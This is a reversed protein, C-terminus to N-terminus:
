NLLAEQRAIAVIAAATSFIRREDRVIEEDGTLNELLQQPRPIRFLSSSPFSGDALQLRALGALLTQDPMRLKAKLLLVLSLEAVDTSVPVQKLRGAEYLVYWPRRSWYTRLDGRAIREAIYKNARRQAPGQHLINTALATVCPHSITWGGAPYGMATLYEPLFTAIGGDTQQHAIVFDEASAMIQADAFGVKQFLQIVRLTTDADPAAKQNYSWGGCDWRLELVAELMEKPVAHFESLTSGICATPWALSPGHRLQHFEQCLGDKIQSTLYEKGTEIAARYM